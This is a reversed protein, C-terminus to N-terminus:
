SKKYYCVNFKIVDIIENIMKEQLLGMFDPNQSHKDNQM